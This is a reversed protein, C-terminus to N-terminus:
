LVGRAARKIRREFFWGPRVFRIGNPGKVYAWGLTILGQHVTVGPHSESGLRFGDSM